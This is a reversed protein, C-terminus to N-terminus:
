ADHGATGVALRKLLQDIEGLVPMRVAIVVAIFQSGFSWLLGAAHPHGRNGNRSGPHRLWLLDTTKVADSISGRTGNACLYGFRWGAAGTQQLAKISM